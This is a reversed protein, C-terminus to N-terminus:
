LFLEKINKDKRKESTFKYYEDYFLIKFSIGFCFFVADTKAYAVREKRLRLLFFPFLYALFGPKGILILPTFLKSIM